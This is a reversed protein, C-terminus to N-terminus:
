PASQSRVDVLVTLTQGPKLYKKIRSKNWSTLQSTKVKFKQAIGSLTDGRRVKYNIKRTTQPTSITQIQKVTSNNKTWIVLSQGTKLTDRPAMGNWQAVQRDNVGFKRAISWFSDGSRVTYENKTGRRSTNKLKSLRADQSKVYSNLDSSAQPILLYKGARISNGRLSNAQRIANISTKNRKALGSLTDGPKVQYRQLKIRQEPPLQNLGSKLQYANGKPVLLRHPGHPATAWHNFGPNLQYLTDLDLDALKAATALDIQSGTEVVEFFPYNAIAPLINRTSNELFLKKLALLKPVYNKTERPLDLSWFDTSRNKKKNRRIGKRVNGAGSNYAAIALMWDGDFERHLSELFNLAANTSDLVDRRGDYWWNQKVGLYKATGPIIQWLGAARGHSYAFSDYASEVIPLLALELPMDRSQLEEKIHYIYNTSRNWVRQMYEPNKKFWNYHQNIRKVAAASGQEPLSFSSVLQDYIRGAGLGTSIFTESTYHAIPPTESIKDIIIYDVGEIYNTSSQTVHIDPTTALCSLSFGLTAFLIIISHKKLNM